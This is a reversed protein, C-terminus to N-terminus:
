KKFNKVETEHTIISDFVMIRNAKEIGKWQRLEYKWIKIKTEKSRWINSRAGDPM